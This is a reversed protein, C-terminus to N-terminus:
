VRHFQLSVRHFVCYLNAYVWHIEYIYHRLRIFAVGDLAVVQRSGLSNNMAYRLLGLSNQVLNLLSNIRVRYIDCLFQM